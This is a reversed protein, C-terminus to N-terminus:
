FCFFFSWRHGSFKGNEGKTKFQAASFDAQTTSSLGRWGRKVVSERREGWAKGLRRRCSKGFRGNLFHPIHPYFPSFAGAAPKQVYIIINRWNSNPGDARLAAL